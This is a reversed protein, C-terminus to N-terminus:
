GSSLKGYRGRSFLLPRYEGDSQYLSLVRGVVIWHDGGEYITEVACAMAASCGELRHVSDWRTFSFPPPADGKWIGAFYTSLVQQDEQLINVSFHSTSRMVQAMHSTKLVCFLLLPPHLSLSTFSNATMGRVEGDVETAIVTVGTAFHGVTNRFERSDFLPASEPQTSRADQAM